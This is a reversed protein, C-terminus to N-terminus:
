ASQKKESPETLDIVKGKESTLNQLAKMDEENITEKSLHLRKLSLDFFRKEIEYGIGKRGLLMATELTTSTGACPDLVIDGPQTTWLIPLVCITSPYIAPHRNNPDLKGLEASEALASSSRIIDEVNQKDLFDKFKKYPKTLALKGKDVGGRKNHRNISYLSMEDNGTSYTFPYYDYNDPDLVFHFIKEYSPSLRREATQPLTNSKSWIIENVLHLKLELCATVLFRLTILYNESKNYTDGLNIFISGTPKMKKVFEKMLIMCNDIYEEPTAELGLEPDNKENNDKHEGYQRLQFYALSTMICQVSGNLVEDMQACSKKYLKFFLNENSLDPMPIQTPKEKIREEHQKFLKYAKGITTKGNNIEDILNFDLKPNAIQFEDVAILRRLTSSSKDSGIYKAAIAFRDKGISGFDPDDEAGLLKRAKGQSLGLIGLVYKAEALEEKITKKRQQNCSIILHKTQDDTLNEVVRVRMEVLGIELGAKWRRVGSIIKNSGDIILEQQQGEEELSKKLLDINDVKYVQQHFPHPELTSLAVLKTETTFIQQKMNLENIFAFDLSKEIYSASVVSLLFNKRKKRKEM